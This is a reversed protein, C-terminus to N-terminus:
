NLFTHNMSRKFIFVSQVEGGEEEVRRGVDQNGEKGGGGDIGSTSVRRMAWQVTQNLSKTCSIM